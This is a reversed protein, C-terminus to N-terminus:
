DPLKAREAEVEDDEKFNSPYHEKMAEFRLNSFDNRSLNHLDTFAIAEWILLIDMDSESVAQMLPKIWDDYPTIGTYSDTITDGKGWPILIYRDVDDPLRSRILDANIFQNELLHFFNDSHQKVSVDRQEVYEVLNEPSRFHAACLEELMWGEENFVLIQPRPMLALREPVMFLSYLTDGGREELWNNVEGYHYIPHDKGAEIFDSRTFVKELKNQNCATILVLVVLM